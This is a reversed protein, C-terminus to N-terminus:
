EEREGKMNRILHSRQYLPHVRGCWECASFRPYGPETVYNRHHRHIGIFCLLRGLFGM